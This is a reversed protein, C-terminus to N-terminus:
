LIITFLSAIEQILNCSGAQLMEVVLGTTDKAKKKAMRKLQFSIEEETVDPIEEDTSLRPIVELM